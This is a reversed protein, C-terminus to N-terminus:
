DLAELAEAQEDESLGKYATKIDDASSQGNVDEFDYSAAISQWEKGSLDPLDSDEVDEDIDSTLTLPGYEDALAQAVEADDVSVVGDEVPIREGENLPNEVTGWGSVDCSLEYSM